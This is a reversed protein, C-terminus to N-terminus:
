EALATQASAAEPSTPHESLIRQFWTKAQDKRGLAKENAALALMLAPTPADGAAELAKALTKTAQEAKGALRLCDGAATCAKVLRPGQQGKAIKLYADAAQDHLGASAQFDALTMLADVDKKDTKLAALAGALADKSRAYARLLGTIRAADAYGEVRALQDGSADALVVTPYGVLRYRSVPVQEVDCNIKAVVFNESALKVLGPDKWTTKDMRTCHPCWGTHFDFLIPKGDATARKLAAAYSTEWPMVATAAAPTTTTTPAPAPAGEAAGAAAPTLVLVLVLGLAHRM